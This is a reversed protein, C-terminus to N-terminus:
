RVGVKFHQAKLVRWCIFILIFDYIVGIITVQLHCSKLTMYYPINHMTVHTHRCSMITVHSSSQNIFEAWLLKLGHVLDMRKASVKAVSSDIGAVVAVLDHAQLLDDAVGVAVPRARLGHALLRRGACVGPVVAPLWLVNGVGLM